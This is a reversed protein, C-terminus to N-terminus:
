DSLHNVLDAAMSDTDAKMQFYKLFAERAAQRADYLACSLEETLADRFTESEYHWREFDNVSFYEEIEHNHKEIYEKAYIMVPLELTSLIEHENSDLVENFDQESNRLAYYLAKSVLNRTARDSQKM